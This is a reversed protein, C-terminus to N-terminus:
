LVKCRVGFWQPHTNKTCQAVHEATTHAKKSSMSDIDNGLYSWPIHTKILMYDLRRQLGRGGNNISYDWKGQLGQGGNNTGLLGVIM